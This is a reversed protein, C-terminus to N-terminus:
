KIESLKAISGIGLEEARRIVELCARANHYPCKWPGVKDEDYAVGDASLRLLWEGKSRDVFNLSTYDWVRAAAWLFEERGSLQFANIFGVIAEAQVWWHRDADIRGERSVEYVLAGAQDVGRLAASAMAVAVRRADVILGEDGITEAAELVLWSAEIDHGFSIFDAAVGWDQKFFPVLRNENTNLFPPGLFMRILDALRRGLKEDPWVRYLASYAELVHLHTNVNKPANVDKESLRMDELPEWDYSLAENYGGNLPDYSFEEVLDFLKIAAELAEPEDFARHYAALGYIAFVQGYTQKRRNAPSGAGDVSWFVGGYESDCFHSCFWSYAHEAAERYRPDGIARAAESFTWIIRANLVVGREADDVVRGDQLIRGHFGGAPDAAQDM